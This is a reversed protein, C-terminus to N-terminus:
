VVRKKRDSGGIQWRLDIPLDQWASRALRLRLPYSFREKAVKRAKDSADPGL